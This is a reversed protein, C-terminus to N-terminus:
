HVHKIDRAEHGQIDEDDGPGCNKLRLPYEIIFCSSSRKPTISSAINPTISTNTTGAYASPFEPEPAEIM